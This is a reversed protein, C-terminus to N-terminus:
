CFSYLGMEQLSKIPLLESMHLKNSNWWPGRGNGACERAREPKIGCALMKRYRTKNNKLQRWYINRIRRRIWEGLSVFISKTDSAKFYQHWGRLIPNLVEDIFRKINWGRGQRMAAKVKLKFKEVSKIHPKIQIQDKRRVNFTYGLFKRQVVHAVASKGSNVKLKLRESIFKTISAMVREGSRKTKVYINCDDAYRCFKHGRRELEKDLYDLIINSLLPSLPGGQPTGEIPNTVESNHMIGAKLYKRILKLVRPDKIRQKLKNMLVDHQVKDFFKELDIDVVIKYGKEVYRKSQKIADQASRRPRFGFSSESFSSDYIQNLVQGVAQQIFRDVVTPIGLQRIGGDPKPIEVRKVPIPNYTGTLLQKKIQTIHLTLYNGLEDVTMNDVGPSGKNQKVQKYARELNSAEVIAEMIQDSVQTRNNQEDHSYEAVTPNIQSKRDSLIRETNQKSVKLTKKNM